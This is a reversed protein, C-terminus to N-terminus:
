KTRAFDQLMVAYAEGPEAKSNPKVRSTISIWGGDNTGRANSYDDKHTTTVEYGQEKLANTYYDIIEESTKDKVFFKISLRRRDGDVDGFDYEDSRDLRIGEIKPLGAPLKSEDGIFQIENRDIMTTQPKDAAQDTDASGCASLALVSTALIIGLIKRM